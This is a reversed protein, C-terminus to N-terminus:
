IGASTQAKLIIIKQIGLVKYTKLAYVLTTFSKIFPINMNVDKVCWDPRGKRAVSFSKKFFINTTRHM